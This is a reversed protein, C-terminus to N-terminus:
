EEEEAEIDIAPPHMLDDIDDTSKIERVPPFSRVLDDPDTPVKPELDPLERTKDDVTVKPVIETSSSPKKEPEM